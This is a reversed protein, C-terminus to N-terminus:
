IVRDFGGVLLRKLYLELAIRLYFPCDLANFFTTFPGPPPEGPKPNFFLPRWKWSARATSTDASVPSLRVASASSM